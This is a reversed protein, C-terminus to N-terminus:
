KINYEEMLYQLARELVVDNGAQIDAINNKVFVGPKNGIGELSTGDPLLFKQISYKYAWGNPLFRYMSADSYDGATHDGMQVVQKFANMHLGFIEGASATFRDTLLIVPKLYTTEGVSTFFERPEEFDDYSPGNRNQVSYVFHEGDSFANAVRTSFLDSGGTNNRTDVIIAQTNELEQIIRDIQSADGGMSGLYIYGINGQKIQGFSFRPNDEFVEIQEVYKSYILESSFEDLAVTNLSDGSEYTRNTIPDALVVHGDNLEEIMETLINWLENDTTTPTVKPRNQNYLDQWDINKVGFLAYHQDFDNWFLEFNSESNNMPQEGLIAKECSLLTTAVLCIIIYQYIKKM